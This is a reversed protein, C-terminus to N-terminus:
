WSSGAEASTVGLTLLRAHCRTDSGHDVRDLVQRLGLRQVGLEGADRRDGVLGVVDAELDVALVDAQVGVAVALAHGSREGVPVDVVDVLAELLEDVGARLDLLCCRFRSM